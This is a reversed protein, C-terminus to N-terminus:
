NNFYEKASDFIDQPETGNAQFVIRQYAIKAEDETIKIGYDNAVRKTFKIDSPTVIVSSITKPKENKM